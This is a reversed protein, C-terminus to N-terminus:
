HRDLDGGMLPVPGIFVRVLATEAEVAVQDLALIQLGSLLPEELDIVREDHWHIRIDPDLDRAAIHNVAPENGREPDLFIRDNAPEILGPEPDLLLDGVVALHVLDSAYVEGEN